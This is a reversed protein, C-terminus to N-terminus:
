NLEEYVWGQEADLVFCLKGKEYNDIIQDNLNGKNNSNKNVIKLIANCLTQHTVILIKKNSNYNYKIINRLVKKTRNVVDEYKEPYKLDNSTLITNFNPNSNFSKAIYEPLTIGVAKKPIIDEHHIESLGYEINIKINNNKSYPYITQLTRIFPSCYITDINIKKLIDILKISNELGKETLPAFMSCDQTRDEHRLIYLKM